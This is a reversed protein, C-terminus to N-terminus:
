LAHPLQRRRRRRGRHPTLPRRRPTCARLRPGLCALMHRAVHSHCWAGGCGTPSRHKWERRAAGCCGASHLPVTAAWAATGANYQLKIAQSHLRLEPMLLSLMVRLTGDHQLQACLPALEQPPPDCPGSPRSPCPSEVTTSLQCLCWRCKILLPASLVGLCVHRPGAAAALVCGWASGWVQTEKQMLEAEWIHEKELLGTSGGHVLHTHNKHMAGRVAAVEARLAAATEPGFVGDIVAFGRRRLHDCVQPTIAHQLRQVPVTPPPTTSSGGAGDGGSDSSATSTASATSTSFRRDM